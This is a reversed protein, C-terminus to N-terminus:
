YAQKNYALDDVGAWMDYKDCKKGTWGADCICKEQVFGKYPADDNYGMGTLICIGKGGCM